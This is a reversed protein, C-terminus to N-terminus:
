LLGFRPPWACINAVELAQGLDRAKNSIDMMREMSGIFRQKLAEDEGGSQTLAMYANKDLEWQDYERLEADLEPLTIPAIAALLAPDQDSIKRTLCGFYPMFPLGAARLIRLAADPSGDAVRQYTRKRETWVRHIPVPADYTLVLRDEALAFGVKRQFVNLRSKLFLDEAREPIITIGAYDIRPTVPDDAYGGVGNPTLHGSLILGYFENEANWVPHTYPTFGHYWYQSVPLSGAKPGADPGADPAPPADAAPVPAGIVLVEQGPVTLSAASLFIDDSIWTGALAAPDTPTEAKDIAAFDATLMAMEPLSCSQNEGIDPLPMAEAGPLYDMLGLDFSIPLLTQTIAVLAAQDTLSDPPAPIGNGEAFTACTIAPQALAAAPLTCLTLAFTIRFM